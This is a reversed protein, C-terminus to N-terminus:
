FLNFSRILEDFLFVFMGLGEGLGLLIRFFILLFSNSAVFPTVFMSLSWILVSLTLINGAGFRSAATSGIIQFSSSFLSSQLCKSSFGSLGVQSTIYGYSFSSLIWGQWSLTWGYEETMQIIALPLIARDASNIFNAATCLCILRYTSTRM